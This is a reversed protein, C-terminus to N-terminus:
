PQHSSLGPQRRQRVAHSSVITTLAELTIRRWTGSSSSLKVPPDWASGRPVLPPPASTLSQLPIPSAANGARAEAPRRRATRPGASAAQRRQQERRGPPPSVQRRTMQTQFMNMDHRLKMRFSCCQVTRAGGGAFTYPLKSAKVPLVNQM